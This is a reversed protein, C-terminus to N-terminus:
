GDARRIAFLQFRPRRIIQRRDGVAGRKLNLGDDRRDILQNRKVVVSSLSRRKGGIHTKVRM